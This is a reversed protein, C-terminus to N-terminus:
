HGSDFTGVEKTKQKIKIDERRKVFSKKKGKQTPKVISLTLHDNYTFIAYLIHSVKDSRRRQGIEPLIQRLKTVLDIM